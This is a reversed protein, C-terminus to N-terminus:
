GAGARGLGTSASTPTKTQSQPRPESVKESTRKMLMDLLVDADSVGSARVMEALERRLAFELDEDSELDVPDSSFKIADLADQVAREVVELDLPDLDRQFTYDM